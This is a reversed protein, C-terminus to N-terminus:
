KLRYAFFLDLSCLSLSLGTILGVTRVLTLIDGHSVTENGVLRTLSNCLLAKTSYRLGDWDNKHQALTQVMTALHENKDPLDSSELTDFVDTLFGNVHVLDIENADRGLDNCFGSAPGMKGLIIWCGVRSTAFAVKFGLRLRDYGRSKPYSVGHVLGMGFGLPPGCLEAMLHTRLPVEHSQHAVLLKAKQFAAGAKSAYAAYSHAYLREVLKYGSSRELNAKVSYPELLKLCLREAGLDVIAELNDMLLRNIDHLWLMDVLSKKIAGSTTPKACLADRLAEVVVVGSSPNQPDLAACVCLISYKRAEPTLPSGYGGLPSCAKGPYLTHYLLLLLLQLETLALIDLIDFELPFQIKVILDSPKELAHAEYKAAPFWEIMDCATCGSLTVADINSGMGTREVRYYSGDSLPILLFEHFFPSELTRRHQM